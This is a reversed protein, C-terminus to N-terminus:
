APQVAPPVPDCSSPRRILIPVHAIGTDHAIFEPGVPEWGQAQYFALASIRANAWQLPAGAAWAAETAFALVARGVGTRRRSPDVAM